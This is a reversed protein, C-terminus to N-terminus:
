TAYDSWAELLIAVGCWTRVGRSSTYVTYGPPTYLAENAPKLWTELQGIKFPYELMDLRAEMEEYHTLQSSVTVLNVKACPLDDMGTIKCKSHNRVDKDHLVDSIDMCM